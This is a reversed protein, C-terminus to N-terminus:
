IDPYRKTELKNDTKNAVWTGVITRVKSQFIFNSKRLGVLDGPLQIILM